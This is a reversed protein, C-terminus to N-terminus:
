SFPEYAGVDKLVVDAAARPERGVVVVLAPASADEM